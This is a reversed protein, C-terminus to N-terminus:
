AAEAADDGLLPSHASGVANELLLSTPIKVQYRDSFCVLTHGRDSREVTGTMGGFSGGEVRVTAGAAFSREAKKRPTRKAELARLQALDSDSVTPIGGFCRMVNFDEHAPEHCYRGRRPKAPMAALQILDILHVAKAFVYSPMLPLTVERRVNMRPVRMTRVETPTWVDFGDEALTRALRQTHRSKTRLICWGGFDITVVGGRENM